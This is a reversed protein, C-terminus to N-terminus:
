PRSWPTEAGDKEAGEKLAEITGEALCEMSGLLNVRDLLPLVRLGGNDAINEGETLKGNLHV